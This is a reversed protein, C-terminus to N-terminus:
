CVCAPDNVLVVCLSDATVSCFFGAQFVVVVFVLCIFNSILKSLRFEFGWGRHYQM